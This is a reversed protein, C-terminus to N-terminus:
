IGATIPSRLLDLKKKTQELISEISTVLEEKCVTAKILVEDVLTKIEPSEDEITENASLIIYPTNDGEERLKKLLFDGNKGPLNFDSIIIDFKEGSDIARMADEATHHVTISETYDKLFLGLIMRYCPDDEILLLKIASM